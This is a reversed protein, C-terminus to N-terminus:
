KCSEDQTETLIAWCKMTWHTPFYLVVGKKGFYGLYEYPLPMNLKTDAKNRTFFYKFNLGFIRTNTTTNPNVSYSIWVHILRFEQFIFDFLIQRFNLMTGRWSGFIWDQQSCECYLIHKWPSHARVLRHGLKCFHTEGWPWTSAIVADLACFGIQDHIKVQVRTHCDALRLHCILGPIIWTMTNTEEGLWKAVPLSAIIQISLRAVRYSIQPISTTYSDLEEM